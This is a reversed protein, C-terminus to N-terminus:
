IRDGVIKSAYKARWEPMVDKTIYSNGGMDVYEQFVQEILRIAKPTFYIMILLESRKTSLDNIKLQKEIALLRDDTRSNWNLSQGLYTDPKIDGEQLANASAIGIQRASKKSFVKIAGYIIGVATITSAVSGIIITLDEM